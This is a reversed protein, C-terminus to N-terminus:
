IGNQMEEEYRYWVRKKGSSTAMDSHRWNNNYLTYWFFGTLVDSLDLLYEFYAAQIDEDEPTTSDLLSTESLLIDKHGLARLREARNRTSIFNDIGSEVPTYIHYSIGDCKPVHNIFDGM